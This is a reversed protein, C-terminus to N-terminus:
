FGFAWNALMSMDHNRRLRSIHSLERQGVRAAFSEMLRSFTWKQIVVDSM